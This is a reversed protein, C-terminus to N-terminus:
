KVKQVIAFVAKDGQCYQCNVPIDVSIFKESFQMDDRTLISNMFKSDKKLSVASRIPGAVKGGIRLHYNISLEAIAAFREVENEKGTLWVSNLPQAEIESEPKISSSVFHDRQEKSINGLTVLMDIFEIVDNHSVDSRSKIQKSFQQLDFDSFKVGKFLKLNESIADKLGQIQDSAKQYQKTDSEIKKLDVESNPSNDDFFIVDFKNLNQLTEEWKGFIVNVNPKKSAWKQLREFVTPDSEIITHSKPHHKQIEDASYGFGFGIELVDGKPDLAAVCAQMFPKEWEMMVQLSGNKLLMDKGNEDKTFQMVSKTITKSM